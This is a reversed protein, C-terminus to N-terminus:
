ASLAPVEATTGPVNHEVSRHEAAAVPICNSVAQEPVQVHCEATVKTVTTLMSLWALVHCPVIISISLFAYM